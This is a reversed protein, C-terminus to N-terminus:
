LVQFEGMTELLLVLPRPLRGTEKGWCLPKVYMDCTHGKYLNQLDFSLDEHKCPFYKISQIM